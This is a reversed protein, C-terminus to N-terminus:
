FLFPVGFNTWFITAIMYGRREVELLGSSSSLLVCYVVQGIILSVVLIVIHIYPNKLRASPLFSHPAFLKKLSGLVTSKKIFKTDTKSNLYRM